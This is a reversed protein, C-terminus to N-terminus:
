PFEILLKRRVDDRYLVEVAAIKDALIDLVLMGQRPELPVNRHGTGYAGDPKPLAYFTGCFDDECRCRDVLTLEQVQAALATEGKELLLEEIESALEPLKEILL